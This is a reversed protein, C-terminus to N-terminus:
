HKPLKDAESKADDWYKFSKQILLKGTTKDQVYFYGSHSVIKYM